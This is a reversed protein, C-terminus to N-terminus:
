YCFSSALLCPTALIVFQPVGLVCTFYCKSVSWVQAAQYLVQSRMLNVGFPTTKEKRKESVLGQLLQFHWCCLLLLTCCTCPWWVHIGQRQRNGTSRSSPLAGSLLWLPIQRSWIVPQMDQLRGEWFSCFTPRASVYEQCSDMFPCFAM